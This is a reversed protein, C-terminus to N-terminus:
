TLNASSAKHPVSVTNDAYTLGWSTDTRDVWEEDGTETDLATVGSASVYVLGNGVALAREIDDDIPARWRREGTAQDFAFVAQNRLGNGSYVTGDQIVPSTSLGTTDSWWRIRGGDRPGSQDTAGTHAATSQFQTWQGTQEDAEGRYGFCGALSGTLGATTGALLKRRHM